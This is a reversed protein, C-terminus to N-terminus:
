TRAAELAPRLFPRAAMRSTGLELFPAYFVVTGVDAYPGLSDEGLRWTISGRLRGTVVGPGQGPQSPSRNSAIRKAASEVRIARRSLDGRVPGRVLADLGASNFRFEEISNAIELRLGPTSAAM